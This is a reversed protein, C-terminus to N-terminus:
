IHWALRLTAAGHLSGDYAILHVSPQFDLYRRLPIKCTLETAFENRAAFNAYDTFAGLQCRGVKYLAGLGVFDRCEADTAFAHSYGALLSLNATIGQRIYFWPVASVGELCYLANGLFYCNGGRMYAVEAVGFVGDDKPCVRFLNERGAFRCYGRGNYLSAQVRLPAADYRYHVGVSAMPYNAIPCNASVTPFIGCSSNTFFSTAECCFYDENMNRIGLALAHREGVSVVLNCASLTFPINGADINSFTQLDGGISEEATMCTSLSAMELTLGTARPREAKPSVVPLEAKLRLLNVYNCKGALTGQLETTYEMGVEPRWREGDRTEGWGALGWCLGAALLLGKSTKYM